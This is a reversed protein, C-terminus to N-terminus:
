EIVEDGEAQNFTPLRGGLKRRGPVQAHVWIDSVSPPLGVVAAADEVVPAVSTTLPAHARGLPIAQAKTVAIPAPAEFVCGSSCFVRQPLVASPTASKFFYKCVYRHPSSADTLTTGAADYM